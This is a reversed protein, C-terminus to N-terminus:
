VVEDTRYFRTYYSRVASSTRTISSGLYRHLIAVHNNSQASPRCIVYAMGSYDCFRCLDSFQKKHQTQQGRVSSSVIGSRRGIKWLVGYGPISM